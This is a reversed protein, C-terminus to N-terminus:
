KSSLAIEELANQGTLRPNSKPCNKLWKWQDARQVKESFAPKRHGQLFQLLKAMRASKSGSKRGLIKDLGQVKLANQNSSLAM